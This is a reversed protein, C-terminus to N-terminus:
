TLRCSVDAFADGRLRKKAPALDAGLGDVNRRAEDPPGNERESQSEGSEARRDDGSDRRDRQANACWFVAVVASRELLQALRRRQM